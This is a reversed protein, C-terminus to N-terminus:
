PNQSSILATEFLGTFLFALHFVFRLDLPLYMVFGAKNLNPKNHQCCDGSLLM